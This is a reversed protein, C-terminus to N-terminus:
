TDEVILPLYKLTNGGFITVYSSATTLGARNIVVCSYNGEIQQKSSTSANIPLKLTINSSWTDSSNSLIVGNPLTEGNKLWQIHPTPVGQTLECVLTLTNNPAAKTCVDEGIRNTAANHRTLDM